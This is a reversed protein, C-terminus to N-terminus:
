TSAHHEGKLNISDAYTQAAFENKFDVIDGCDTDGIYVIVSFLYGQKELSGDYDDFLPGVAAHTSM